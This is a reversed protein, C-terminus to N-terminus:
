NLNSEERRQGDPLQTLISLASFSFPSLTLALNFHYFDKIRDVQPPDITM